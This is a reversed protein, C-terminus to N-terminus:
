LRGVTGHSEDRDWGIRHGLVHHGSGQLSRVPNRQAKRAPRRRRSALAGDAQKLAPRLEDLFIELGHPIQAGAAERNGRQIPAPLAQRIARQAIRALAIDPIEGAVVDIEVGEHTLDHQGVARRRKKRQGM